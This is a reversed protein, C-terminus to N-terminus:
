TGLGQSSHLLGFPFQPTPNLHTQWALSQLTVTTERPTIKFGKPLTSKENTQKMKIISRKLLGQSNTITCGQNRFSEPPEEDLPKLVAGSEIDEEPSRYGGGADAEPPRSFVNYQLFLFVPFSFKTLITLFLFYIASTM